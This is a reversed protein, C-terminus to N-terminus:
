CRNEWKAPFGGDKVMKSWIDYIDRLAKGTKMKQAIGYALMIVIHIPNLPVDGAFGILIPQGYDIFKKSGTPQDWKLSPYDRLLVQSLYMGVDVALSFTRDTLEWDSREIPYPSRRELQEEQTRTRTDVQIAFWRGLVSLSAPTFSPRWDGFDPSSQVVKTLEAIRQPMIQHFWRGYEKLEEKSMQPFKLTFPPKITNYATTEM